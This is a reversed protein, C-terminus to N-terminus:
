FITIVDSLEPKPSNAIDLSDPYMGAAIYMIISENKINLIEKLKIDKKYDVDWNLCCTAIKESHLAYVLSMCFMGGGIYPQRRELHDQFYELSSTVIMVVPAYEGFGANGNQLSLIKSKLSSDKIVYVKNIPRNCVTPTGYISKEIASEILHNPIDRNDFSRVSRRKVFFDYSANINKFYDRSQIKTTGGWKRSPKLKKYKKLYLEIYPCLCEKKNKIHWYYYENICDYIVGLIKDKRSFGPFAFDCRRLYEKNMEYLRNLVGSNLGFNARCDQMALGKEIRHYDITIDSVLQNKSMMSYDRNVSSMCSQMFMKKDYDFEDFYNVRGSKKSFIDVFPVFSLDGVHKNREKIKLVINDYNEIISESLVILNGVDKAKLVYEGLGWHSLTGLAKVGNYEVVICPVSQTITLISLHMRGTILFYLNDTVIKEQSPELYDSIFFDCDGCESMLTGLLDKERAHPRSDHPIMLFRFRESYHNILNKYSQWVADNYQKFDKHINIGVIKKDSSNIWGSLEENYIYDDKPCLHAIDACLAPKNYFDFEEDVIALSHKDRFYIYFNEYAKYPEFCKKFVADKGWSCNLVFVSKGRSLFNDMYKSRDGFGGYYALIDNGFLVLCDFSLLDVADGKHKILYYEAQGCKLLYECAKVIAADGINGLQFDPVIVLVRPVQDIMGTKLKLFYENIDNM